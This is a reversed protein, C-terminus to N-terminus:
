TQALNLRSVATQLQNPQLHAYNATIQINSHGMLRQVEYIPVGAQVLWSGFTHRLSHFHLGSNLGAKEVYAKFIKSVKHEDMVGGTSNHFVLLNEDSRMGRFLKWLFGNMPIVRNRKSKTTFDGSNRVYVIRTGTDIDTWKLHLLEGLRMGTNVGVLVLNRFQSDSIVGLFTKMERKSFFLPTKELTKPKAVQRWPNSTLYHWRHATEFAASLHAYYKKATFDSAEAKKTALFGEIERIGVKDLRVDGVIRILERFANDNSEQTKPTHISASYTKFDEHFEKLTKGTLKVKRKADHEKFDRLFKLADPKTLAGTSVKRKKGMADHFWLYWIGNNRKSLYM